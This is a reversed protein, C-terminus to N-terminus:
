PTLGGVADICPWGWCDTFALADFTENHSRDPSANRAEYHALDPPYFRNYAVYLAEPGYGILPRIANWQDTSGDPFQLPAHPTILDVIGEWILVRVRGTGGETEFVEGLRGIGADAAPKLPGNPISLVVLFGALLAARRHHHAHAGTGALRQAAGRVCSGPWCGRGRSSTFWIAVLNVAFIFIYIAARAMSPCARTQRHPHRSPLSWGGLAVPASAIPLHGFIANGM